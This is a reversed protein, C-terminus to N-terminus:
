VPFTPEARALAPLLELLAVVCDVLDGLNGRMIQEAGAPVRVGKAAM